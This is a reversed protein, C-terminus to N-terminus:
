EARLILGRGTLPLPQADLIRRACVFRQAYYPDDMSTYRVGGSDAHIFQGDGAYIGVHTALWPSGPDRFFVLDGLQIGEVSIVMGDGMQMDATRQLGIGHQRYVWSVFGSCDFGNPGMGGYVYSCGLKSGATELLAARARLADGLPQRNLTRNDPDGPKCNVYYEGDEYKVQAKAIYGEMGLCDVQYYTGTQGLITLRTGDAMRGVSDAGGEPRVYVACAQAQEPEQARVPLQLAVALLLVTACMRVTKRLTM